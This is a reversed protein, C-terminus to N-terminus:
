YIYIYIDYINFIIINKKPNRGKPGARWVSKNRIKRNEAVERWQTIPEM